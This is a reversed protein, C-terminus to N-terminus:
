NSAPLRRPPKRSPPGGLVKLRMRREQWRAADLAGVAGDANLELGTCVEVWLRLREIEGAVPRPVPWLRTVKQEGATIIRQGDPSFAVAVVERFPHRLPRGLSKGTTVDWFQATGDSSGTLITQGDPSFAIARVGRPHILPPCAPQGTPVHWLRATRDYSGTLLLKGDPSFAM